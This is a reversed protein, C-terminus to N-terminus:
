RRLAPADFTNVPCCTKDLSFASYYCFGRDGRFCFSSLTPCTGTSSLEMCVQRGGAPVSSRPMNLAPIKFTGPSDWQQDVKMGDLYVAKVSSRCKDKTWWEIKALPQDCCANAPDICDQARLTMCYVRNTGNRRPTTIESDLSFPIVGVTRNCECFPFAVAPPPFRIAPALPPPPDPPPPSPPPPSPPPPSPLLPAPSAPPRPPLRPQSPAPPRAPTPAYAANPSPPPPRLSSPPTPLRRPQPPPPSPPKPSPPRPSPPPPSPPPPSPPPPSPPPPSPPPPSPPPPSPPPPSTGLSGVPCCDCPGSQVLAFTCFGNGEPCLTAMSPCKGGLNMCIQAGQATSTTLNLGTLKILAKTDNAFLDFTPALARRTVGGAPTVTVGSVANKCEKNINLEVKYLDIAPRCCASGAKACNVVRATFCIRNGNTTYGPDLRFRSQLPDRNCGYPPFSNLYSQASACSILALSLLLLPTLLRM